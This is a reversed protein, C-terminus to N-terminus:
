GFRVYIHLATLEGLMDSLVSTLENRETVREVLPEYKKRIATWDVGHMGRDYFYDRMMRWSEIYIQKWEERPDIIFAWGSTEAANSLNAPAAANADITYFADGKKVVMKNDKLCLEYGNIDDAMTFVSHPKGTIEYHKLARKPNFGAPKSTFYLYKSGITLDEYNGAPVPVEELRTALGDLDITVTTTAPKKPEVKAAAKPAETKPKDQEKANTSQKEEMLKAVMPRILQKLRETSTTTKAPPTAPKQTTAVPTSATTLEDVPRFPSKEGKKLAVHYIKTTDTYFPEPQWLGWPSGVVTRLERDSLFYLWKGDPSWAPSYSNTRDSTITAKTLDSVRCIKVQKYTNTAEECYAIWQSDPSWAFDSRITDGPSTTILKTEKKGFGYVWLKMDKDGWAFWKGDPSPKGGFRFRKGDSTIQKPAETGNAPATWFEIEGSADSQLLLTKGDPLFTASRYRVGENRPLEIFRGPEFPAVFVEGRATLVVRDGNPSAGWTTLYEFPKKVWQERQQDFDSLLTINIPTDKGSALDLLRLDAGLQYVVRGA